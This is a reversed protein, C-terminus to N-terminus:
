IGIWYVVTAESYRTPDLSGSTRVKVEYRGFSSGRAGSVDLTVLGTEGSALMQSQPALVTTLTTPGTVSVTSSFNSTSCVANNNNKISVNYRRTMDSGPFVTQSNPLATVLPSRVICSPSLTVDVVASDQSISITKILIGSQSLYLENGVPLDADYKPGPTGAYLVRTNPKGTKKDQWVKKILLGDIQGMDYSYDDFIGTSRRFEVLLWVDQASDSSIPVRLARYGSGSINSPLITYSGSQTITRIQSAQFWGLFQNHVVSFHRGNTNGMNDHQDYQDKQICNSNESYRTMQNQNNTCIYGNAHSLGLNHGMEHAFLPVIESLSQIPTFFRQTRSDALGQFGCQTGSYAPFVIGWQDVPVRGLEQRALAIAANAVNQLVPLECSAPKNMQLTYYGLVSGDINLSGKSVERYWGEVTRGAGFMKSEVTAKSVPQRTDNAFNVLLVMVQKTRAQAVMVDSFSVSTGSYTSDVPLSLEPNAKVILINNMVEEYTAGPVVLADGLMVGRVELSSGAQVLPAHVFHLPIEEQKDTVVYYSSEAGSEFDAVVSGFEGAISIDHEIYESLKTISLFQKQIETPFLLKTLVTIPHISGELRTNNEKSANILSTLIGRREEAIAMMDEIVAERETLETDRYKQLKSLLSSSLEDVSRIEEEYTMVAPQKITEAKYTSRQYLVLGVGIIVAAVAIVSLTVLIKRTKFFEVM